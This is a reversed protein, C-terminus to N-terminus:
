TENEKMTFLLLELTHEANVNADLRKKAHEITSLIKNIGEFSSEKAMQMITYTEELHLLGNTNGAAKCFAVDKYWLFLYDLFERIDTQLKTIKKIEEGIEAADMRKINKIVFVAERSLEEFEDNNLLAMARGISGRAFAACTRAQYDPIQAKKMLYDQVQSDQLPYLSLTVCRSRITELLMTENCCLLLIVVYAPPEELTKLLANQAAANMREADPIIYIKYDSSYPKIGVDNVIQRRIEDVKIVNPKEPILHRIDPHNGSAAQKCSHCTMCPEAEGAECLLTMAFADAIMSKGSGQEGQLIYAHSIMRSLIAEQLHEKIHEQGVIESFGAM